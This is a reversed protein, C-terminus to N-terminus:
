VLQLLFELFFTTLPPIVGHNVINLLIELIKLDKKLFKVNIKM